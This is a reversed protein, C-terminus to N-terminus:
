CGMREDRNRVIVVIVVVIVFFVFFFFLLLASLTLWPDLKTLPEGAAITADRECQQLLAEAQAQGMVPLAWGQWTAGCILACVALGGAM